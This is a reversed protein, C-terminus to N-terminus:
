PFVRKSGCPSLRQVNQASIPQVYAIVDNSVLSRYLVLVVPARHSWDSSVLGGAYVVALVAAALISSTGMGSGQPLNSWAQVCLGSGISRRLIPEWGDSGADEPRVVGACVLVAKFLAGPATPDRLDLM